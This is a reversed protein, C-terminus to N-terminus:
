DWSLSPGDLTQGRPSGDRAEVKSGGKLTCKWIPLVCPPLGLCALGRRPNKRGWNRGVEARVNKDWLCLFLAAKTGTRMAQIAQVSTRLSCCPCLGEQTGKNAGWGAWTRGLFRSLSAEM